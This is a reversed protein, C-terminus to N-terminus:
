DGGKQVKMQAPVVSEVLFLKGDVDRGFQGFVLLDNGNFLLKAHDQFRGQSLLCSFGDFRLKWKEYNPEFDKGQYISSIVINESPSLVNPDLDTAKILKWNANLYSVFTVSGNPMLIHKKKLTDITPLYKLDGKSDTSINAKKSEDKNKEIVTSKLTNTRDWYSFLFIAVIVIFISLFLLYQKRIM